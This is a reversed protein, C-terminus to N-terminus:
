FLHFKVINGSLRYTLVAAAHFATHRDCPCKQCLIINQDHILRQLSKVCLRLLFNGCDYFRLSGSFGNKKDRM